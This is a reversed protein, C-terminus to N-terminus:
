DHAAADPKHGMGLCTPCRDGHTRAIFWGADRYQELPPQTASPEGETKCRHVLGAELGHDQHFCDCRMVWRKDRKDPGRRPPKKHDDVWERSM